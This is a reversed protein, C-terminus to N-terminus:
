PMSTRSPIDNRRALTTPRKRAGTKQYEPKIKGFLADFEQVRLGTM